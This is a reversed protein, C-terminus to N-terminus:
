LVKPLYINKTKGVLHDKMTLPLWEVSGDIAHITWRSSEWPFNISSEHSSTEMVFKLDFISESLKLPLVIVQEELDVAIREPFVAVPVGHLTLWSTPWYGQHVLENSERRVVISIGSPESDGKLSALSSSWNKQQLNELTRRAAAMSHILAKRAGKRHYGSDILPWSIPPQILNSLDSSWPNISEWIGGGSDVFTPPRGRYLPHRVSRELIPRAECGIIGLWHLTPAMSTFVNAVDVGNANIIRGNGTTGAFQSGSASHSM